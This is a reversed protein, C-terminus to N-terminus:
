LSLWDVNNIIYVYDVYNLTVTTTVTVFSSSCVRHRTQEWSLFNSSGNYNFNVTKLCSKNSIYECHSKLAKVATDLIIGRV